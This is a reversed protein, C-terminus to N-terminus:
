AASGPGLDPVGRPDAQRARGCSLRRCVTFARRVADHKADPLSQALWIVDGCAVNALIRPSNGRQNTHIQSNARAGHQCQKSLSDRWSTTIRMLVSGVEGVSAVLWKPLAGKDKYQNNSITAQLSGCRGSDANQFRKPLVDKLPVGLRRSRVDYVDGTQFECSSSHCTYRWIGDGDEHISGSPHKEEHFPCKVDPGHITAGAAVLELELDARQKNSSM